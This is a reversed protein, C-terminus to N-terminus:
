REVKQWGNMYAMLGMGLLVVGLMSAYPASSYLLSPQDCPSPPLAVTLQQELAKIDQSAVATGNQVADEAAIQMEGGQEENEPIEEPSKKSSISASRSRQISMSLRALEDARIKEVMEALSKRGEDREAEAMEARQRYTEMQQKIERMEIMMQELKEQIKNTSAQVSEVSSTDSDVDNAIARALEAVEALPELPPEFAEEVIDGGKAAGNMYVGASETELRKALEEATQRAEREKQLMDELDRMRESQSEIEKKATTLAELLAVIQSSSEQKVPSTASVSRPRETDSRKLSAEPTQIRPVDPKEPLPQQPPPAPPDSFRPKADMKFSVGNPLLQKTPEEVKEEEKFEKKTLLTDLFQETRTLDNDQLRAQRM